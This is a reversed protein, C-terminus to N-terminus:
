DADFQSQGKPIKPGGAPKAMIIQDVRLINTVSDTALKIAWRKSLALDWVGLKHASEFAQNEVDVGFDRKDHAEHLAHLTSLAEIEDMGAGPGDTVVSLSLHCSVVSLTDEHTQSFSLIFTGATESLTRPIVELAEAYKQFSYQELGPLKEGEV